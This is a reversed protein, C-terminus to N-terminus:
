DIMSEDRVAQDLDLCKGFKRAPTRRHAPISAARPSGGNWARGDLPPRAKPSFVM